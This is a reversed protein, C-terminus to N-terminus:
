DQFILLEKPFLIISIDKSCILLELFSKTRQVVTHDINWKLNFELIELDKDPPIENTQKLMKQFRRIDNLNIFNKYNNLISLVSRDYKRKDDKEQKEKIENETDRISIAYLLTIVSLLIAILALVLSLFNVTSDFYFTM